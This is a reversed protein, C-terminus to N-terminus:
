RRQSVWNSNRNNFFKVIAECDTRVLIEKKNLLFLRFSDLAYNVALLEQDISSTLGKERCQVNSYRCIQEETKSSYKNPKAKLIAWWGEECGDCEVILYDTDLPLKLNSLNAVAQKVKEIQKDDEM